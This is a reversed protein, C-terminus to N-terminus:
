VRKLVALLVVLLGMWVPLLLVVLWRLQATTAAALEKGVRECGATMEGRLEAFKTDSREFGATMEARVETVRQEIKADFRAFNTENLVRLEALYTADMDNLLGVLENTNEDGFTEYFRRSLRATRAV